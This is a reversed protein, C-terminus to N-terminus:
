QIKFGYKLATEYLYKLMEDHSHFNGSMFAPFELTDYKEIKFYELIMKSINDFSYIEETSRTAKLDQFFQEIEIKGIIQKKNEM